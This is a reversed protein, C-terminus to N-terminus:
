WADYDSLDISEQTIAETCTVVQGLTTYTISWTFGGGIAGHLAGGRDKRIEKAKKLVDIHWRVYRETQEQNLTAGVSMETDMHLPRDEALQMEHDFVVCYACILSTWDQMKRLAGRPDADWVLTPLIGLSTLTLGTELEKKSSVFASLLLYKAGCEKAYHLLEREPHRDRRAFTDRVKLVLENIPSKQIWARVCQNYAAFSNTGCIEDWDVWHIVFGEEKAKLEGVATRALYTFTDYNTDGGVCPARYVLELDSIRLNTEEFTERICAEEPTEGPDVKGGPLNMDSPNNRRSIALIKGEHDIVLACSAQKM